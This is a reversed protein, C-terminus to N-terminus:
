SERVYPLLWMISLCFERFRASFEMRLLPSMRM